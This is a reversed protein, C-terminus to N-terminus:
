TRTKSKGKGKAKKVPSVDVVIDDAAPSAVRRTAKPKAARKVAPASQSSSAVVKYTPVTERNSRRQGGTDSQWEVASVAAGVPTSQQAKAASDNKANQGAIPAVLTPPVPNISHTGDMSPVGNAVIDMMKVCANFHVLQFKTSLLHAPLTPPDRPTDHKALVWQLDRFLLGTTLCFVELLALNAYLANLPNFSSALKKSILNVSSRVHADEPLM